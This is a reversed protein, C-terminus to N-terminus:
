DWAFTWLHEEVRERSFGPAEATSRENSSVVPPSGVDKMTRAM